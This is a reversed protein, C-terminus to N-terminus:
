PPPPPALGAKTQTLWPMRSRFSFDAATFAKLNPYDGLRDVVAPADAPNRCKALLYTTQEPPMRLLSRATRVSCFVYPGALSKLGRVLGVVRVRRGAVEAGAGVGTIGLRELEKEDVVVAGPETLRARLEPTLENASGLADDDLRCGIVMALETGGNPKSWYTFG